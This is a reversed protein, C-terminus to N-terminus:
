KSGRRSMIVYTIGALVLSMVASGERTIKGNADRLNVVKGLGLKELLRCCAHDQQLFSVILVILSAKMRLDMKM